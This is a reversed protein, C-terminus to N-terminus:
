PIDLPYNLLYKSKFFKESGNLTTFPTKSADYIILFSFGSTTNEFPPNTDTGTTTAAEKLFIGTTAWSDSIVGPRAFM